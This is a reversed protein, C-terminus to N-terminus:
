HMDYRLLRCPIKGNFLPTQQAPAMGIQDALMRNGTFVFATWGAFHKRMVEGLTRYLPVLEKEEGLREGYPPNCLLTGPPGAPPRVQMLDRTEFQILHGVGAARANGEAFHVVDRRV